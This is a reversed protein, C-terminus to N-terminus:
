KGRTRLRYRQLHYFGDDDRASALLYDSGFELVTLGGPVIAESLWRGTSDFVSFVRPRAPDQGGHEVWLRGDGSVRLAAVAPRVNADSITILGTRVAERIDPPADEARKAAAARIEDTSVPVPTWGRRILRRPRGARDIVAIQFRDGPSLAVQDGFAAVAVGPAFLATGYTWQPNKPHRLSPTLLYSALSDAQDLAPQYRLLTARNRITRDTNAIPDPLASRFLLSGDGFIGEYWPFGHEGFQTLRSLRHFRGASDFVQLRRNTPEFTIITDHQTRGIWGLGEFEGPGAGQRGITRIWRGTSDFFRLETQAWGAVVLNGNSLGVAASIPGIYEVNAGGASGGIDFVPVSDVTISGPAAPVVNDVLEVGASDRVAVGPPPGASDCAVIAALLALRSLPRYSAM